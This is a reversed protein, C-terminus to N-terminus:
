FILKLLAYSLKTETLPCKLVAKFLVYIFFYSPFEAKSVLLMLFAQIQMINVILSLISVYLCCFRVRKDYPCLTMFYLSECIIKTYDLNHVGKRAILLWHSNAVLNSKYLNTLINKIHIGAIMYIVLLMSFM